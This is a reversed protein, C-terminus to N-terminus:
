EITQVEIIHLDGAPKDSVINEHAKVVEEKSPAETICFAKGEAVNYYLKHAELDLNACSDKYKAWAGDVKDKPMNIGSHVGLYLAM